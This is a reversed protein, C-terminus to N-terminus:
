SIHRVLRTPAQALARGSHHGGEKRGDSRALIGVAPHKPHQFARSPREARVFQIEDDQQAPGILIRHRVQLPDNGAPDRVRQDYCPRHREIRPECIQAFAADTVDRKAPRIAMGTGMPDIEIVFGRCALAHPKEDPVPMPSDREDLAAETQAELPDDGAFEADFGCTSAQRFGRDANDLGSGTVDDSFYQGAGAITGGGNQGRM